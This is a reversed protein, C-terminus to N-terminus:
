LSPEDVQRIMVFPSPWSWGAFRLAYWAASMPGRVRSHSHPPQLQVNQWMERVDALTNPCIQGNVLAWVMRHVAVIPAVAMLQATKDCLVTSKDLNAGAKNTMNAAASSRRMSRLDTGSIGYVAAGYSFGPQLGTTLIRVAKAGAVKRLRRFRKMRKGFNTRRAKLKERSMKGIARGVATLAWTSSPKGRPM